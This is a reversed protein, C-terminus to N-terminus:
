PGHVLQWCLPNIDYLHIKDVSKVRAFWVCTSCLTLCLERALSRSSRCLAMVSLSPARAQGCRRPKSTGGFPENDDTRASKVAFFSSFFHSSRVFTRVSTISHHCKRKSHGEGGGRTPTATSLPFIFARPSSLRHRRHRSNHPRLFVPLRSANSIVTSREYMWVPPVNFPGPLSRKVRMPWM